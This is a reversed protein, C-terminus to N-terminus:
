MHKKNGPAMDLEQSKRQKPETLSIEIEAIGTQLPTMQQLEAHQQM